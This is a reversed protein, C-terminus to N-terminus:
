AYVSPWIVSVGDMNGCVEILQSVIKFRTEWNRYSQRVWPDALFGRIDRWSPNQLAATPHTMTGSLHTSRQHRPRQEHEQPSEETGAQPTQRSNKHFTYIM